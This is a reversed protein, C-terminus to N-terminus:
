LLDVAQWSLNDLYSESTEHPGGGFRDAEIAYTPKFRFVEGNEDRFELSLSRGVPPRNGLRVYLSARTGRWDLPCVSGLALVFYDKKGEEARSADFKVTAGDPRYAIQGEDM